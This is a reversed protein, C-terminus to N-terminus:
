PLAARLELRKEHLGSDVFQRKWETFASRVRDTFRDEDMPGWMNQALPYVQANAFDDVLYFYPKLEEHGLENTIITNIISEQRCIEDLERWIKKRKKFRSESVWICCFFPICLLSVALLTLINENM